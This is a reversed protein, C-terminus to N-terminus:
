SRTLFWPLSLHSCLFGELLERTSLQPQFLSLDCRKSWIKLKICRIGSKNIPHSVLTRYPELAASWAGTWWTVFGTSRNKFWHTLWDEKTRVPLQGRSNPGTARSNPDTARSNSGHCPLQVRPVPTPSSHCPLQRSPFQSNDLTFLWPLQHPLQGRSNPGTARSNSGHWPLQGRSSQPDM